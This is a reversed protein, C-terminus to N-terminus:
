EGKAAKKVEYAVQTIKASGPLNPIQGYVARLYALDFTTMELPPIAGKDFLSLITGVKGRQGPPRTQALGRMAVYDAVQRVHLGNLAPIDILIVSAVIDQRAALYIHSQANATKLMAPEDGDGRGSLMEGLRGRTETSVWVHVPGPQAALERLDPDTALDYLEARDIGELPWPRKNRIDQLAAQGGPTFIVLLNAKCKERDLRVKAMQAVARIRAIMMAAYEPPMGIVGPCVPTQFQALPEHYLDRHPTMAWATQEIKRPTDRTGTVVIDDTPRPPASPAQALAASAILAVMPWAPRIM